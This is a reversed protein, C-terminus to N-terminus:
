NLVGTGTVTKSSAMTHHLVKDGDFIIALQKSTGHNRSGFYAMGPVFNIGDVSSHVMEYKWIEKGSDTYNVNLPDGFMQKVQEKTTVGDIIKADVSAQTENKLTKNGSNSCAVTAMPLLLVSLMVAMKIKSM